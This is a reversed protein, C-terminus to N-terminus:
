EPVDSRSLPPQLIRKKLEDKAAAQQPSLLDKVTASHFPVAHYNVSGVSSDPPNNPDLPTNSSWGEWGFGHKRSEGCV